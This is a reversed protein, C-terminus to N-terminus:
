VVLMVTKSYNSLLKAKRVHFYLYLIEIFIHFVILLFFIFIISFTANAQLINVNNNRQEHRMFLSKFLQKCTTYFYFNNLEM